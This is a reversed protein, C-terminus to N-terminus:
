SDILNIVLYVMFLQNDIKITKGSYQQSNVDDKLTYSVVTTNMIADINNDHVFFNSVISLKKDTLENSNGLDANFGYTISKKILQNELSVNSGVIADSSIKVQLKVPSNNSMKFKEM